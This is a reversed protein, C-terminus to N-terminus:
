VIGGFRRDRNAYAKMAELLDERDFDPWAKPTIWLESYSLQWLLFNSIRMEGSTRIMLDPDPIDPAYLHGQVLAEDIEDVTLEGDHVKGAIARVADVLEVRGGYNIALCLTLGRHQESMRISEDLEKLVAESLEQRRGIMRLRVQNKVLNPRERVLYQQLLQM